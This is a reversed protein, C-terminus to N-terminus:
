DNYVFYNIGVTAKTETQIEKSGEAHKLSLQSWLQSGFQHRYKAM